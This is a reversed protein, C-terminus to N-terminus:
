LVAASSLRHSSSQAFYERLEGVTASAPLSSLRQHMVDAATLGDVESVLRM